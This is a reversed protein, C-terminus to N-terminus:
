SPREVEAYSGDGAGTLIQRRTPDSLARATTQWAKLCTRLPELDHTSDALSIADHLEDFFETRDDEDFVSLWAMAGLEFPRAKAQRLVSEARILAVATHGLETVAELEALPVMVLAFGDTDRLLARGSRAASIFERRRAGALDSAQFVANGAVM